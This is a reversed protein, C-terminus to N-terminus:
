FAYLAVLNSEHRHCSAPKEKENTRSLSYASLTGLLHVRSGYVLLVLVKNLSVIVKFLRRFDGAAAPFAFM